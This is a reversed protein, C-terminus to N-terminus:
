EIVVATCVRLAGISNSFACGDLRSLRLGESACSCRFLGCIASAGVICDAQASDLGHLELVELSELRPVARELLALEHETWVAPLGDPCHLPGLKLAKLSACLAPVEVIFTLLQM